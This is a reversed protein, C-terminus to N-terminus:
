SRAGMDLSRWASSTTWTTSDNRGSHTASRLLRVRQTSSIRSCFPSSSDKAGRPRPEASSTRMLALDGEGWYFSKSPIDVFTSDPIGHAVHHSMDTSVMPLDGTYVVLTPVGVTPLISRVDSRYYAAVLCSAVEPSAGLRETRGAFNPDPAGTALTPMMRTIEGTGWVSRVFAAMAQVDVEVGIPYDDTKTLRAFPNLLALRQVRSGWPMWCPWPTTAGSSWVVSM